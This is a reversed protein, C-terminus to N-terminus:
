PIKMPEEKLFDLFWIPSVTSSHAKSLHTPRKDGALWQPSFPFSAGRSTHLCPWIKSNSFCCVATFVLEGATCLTNQHTILLGERLIGDGERLHCSSPAVSIIVASVLNALYSYSIM